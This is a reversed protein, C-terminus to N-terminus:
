SYKAYVARVRVIDGANALNSSKVQFVLSQANVTGLILRISGIISGGSGGLERSCIDCVTQNNKLTFFTLPAKTRQTGNITSSLVEVDAFLVANSMLSTPTNLNIVGTTNNTVAIDQGFNTLLKYGPIPSNSDTTPIEIWDTGGGQNDVKGLFAHTPGDGKGEAFCTFAVSWYESMKKLFGFGDVSKGEYGSPIQSSGNNVAFPVLEALDDPILYELGETLDQMM